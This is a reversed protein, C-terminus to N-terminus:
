RWGARVLARDVTAALLEHGRPSPHFEDSYAWTRWWGPALGAPPAADLVADTCGAPFEAAPPCAAQTADTLGFAAPQTGQATFDEFYPVLAVRPEGAVLRALETNFAVIWRRLAAQFAAAEAAGQAAAIEQAIGRYRPTLTLDPVNLLAVRMAGKDLTQAKVTDWYTQALRQMYRTAAVSQGDPQDLAERIASSGLQQALLAVFVAQEATSGGRADRYVSALAAADNAGADVVILDGPRWSGGSAEVAKELQYRLSFPVANGARVVPNVIQAGGVAYNTCGERRSFEVGNTSAFHNCLAGLGLSSAVIEPFVPYGTAPAAASQVTARRGFTGVDALSDGAVVLRTIRTDQAQAQPGSAAPPSAALDDGGGGCAGLALTVAALAARLLRAPVPLLTM